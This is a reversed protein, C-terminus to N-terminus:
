ADGFERAAPSSSHRLGAPRIVKKASESKKEGVADAVVPQAVIADVAPVASTSAVLNTDTKAIFGWLGMLAAAIVPVVVELAGQVSAVDEVKIYGRAAVASAVAGIIWRVIGAVQEPNVSRVKNTEDDVM